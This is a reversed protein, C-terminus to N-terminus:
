GGNEESGNGNTGFDFRIPGGDIGSHEIRERFLLFYKGLLELARLKDNMKFTVKSFLITQEGRADERISRDETIAALARSADEPIQEWGKARVCGTDPDIDLYDKLDAFAVVGLERIVREATIGTKGAIEALAAALAAQVQPKKLLDYAYQPASSGRFGSARAARTGNFDKLYERIFALQRKSLAHNKRM